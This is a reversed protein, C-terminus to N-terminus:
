FLIHQNIDIIFINTYMNLYTCQTCPEGGDVMSSWPSMVQRDDNADGGQDCFRTESTMGRYHVGM